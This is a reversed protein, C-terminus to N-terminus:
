DPPEIILVLKALLNDEESVARIVVQTGVDIDDFTAGEGPPYLQRMNQRGPNGQGSHKLEVRERAPNMIRLASSFRALRSNLQKPNEQSRQRLEERHQRALGIMMGPPSPKFYQTDDNVAITAEGKTSQIIFYGQDEDIAVVEGRLPKHSASKAGAPVSEPAALVPSVAGLILALVLIPVGAIKLFKV